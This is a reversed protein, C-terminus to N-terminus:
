GTERRCVGRRLLDSEELELYMRSRNFGLALAVSRVDWAPMSSVIEWGNPLVQVLGRTYWLAAELIKGSRAGGNGFALCRRALAVSQELILSQPEKTAVSCKHFSELSGGMCGPKGCPKENFLGHPGLQLALHWLVSHPGLRGKVSAKVDSDKWSVLHGEYPRCSYLEPVTSATPMFALAGNVLTASEHRERKQSARVKDGKRMQGLRVAEKGASLLWGESKMNFPVRAQSHRPVVIPYGKTIM